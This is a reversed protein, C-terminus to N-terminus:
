YEWLFKANVVVQIDDRNIELENKMLNRFSTSIAEMNTKFSNSIFFKSVILSMAFDRPM